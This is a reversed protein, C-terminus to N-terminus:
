PYFGGVTKTSHATAPLGLYPPRVTPSYYVGSPPRDGGMLRLQIDELRNNMEQLEIQMERQTAQSSALQQSMSFSWGIAGSAMSIASISIFGWVWDPISHMWHNSGPSTKNM